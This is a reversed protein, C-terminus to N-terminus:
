AYASNAKYKLKTTKVIVYNQYVLMSSANLAGLSSSANFSCLISPAYVSGYVLKKEIRIGRRDTMSKTM